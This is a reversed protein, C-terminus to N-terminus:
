ALHRELARDLLHCISIIRTFTRAFVLYLSCVYVDRFVKWYSWLGTDRLYSALHVLYSKTQVIVLPSRCSTTPVLKSSEDRRENM